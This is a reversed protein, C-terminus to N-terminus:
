GLCLGIRITDTGAGSLDIECVTGSVDALEDNWFFQMVAGPPVVLDNGSGFLPYPNSSGPSITIANDSVNELILTQVKLGTADQAVDNVGLLATLDITAAGGSLAYIQYSAMSIPPTSSGNLTLNTKDFGSHTVKAGAAADINLTELATMKFLPNM